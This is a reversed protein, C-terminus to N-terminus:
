FSLLVQEYYVFVFTKRLIIIKKLVKTFSKYFEKYEDESVDKPKRTWIPKNTNLQEWDWVTKEVQYLFPRINYNPLLQCIVAFVILM